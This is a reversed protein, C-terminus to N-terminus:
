DDTCTSGMLESLRVPALPDTEPGSSETAGSPWNQGYWPGIRGGFPKAFGRATLQLRPGFPFFIQRPATKAQVGFYVMYWPNKEVGLSMKLDSNEVPAFQAFQKLLNLEEQLQGNGGLFNFASPGREPLGTASSGTILPSKPYANCGDGSEVDSYLLTPDIRIPVLWEKADNLGTVEKSMSNIFDWQVQESSGGAPDDGSGRNQFTLNKFLTKKVGLSVPSGSLEVFDKQMLNNGLAWIIKKRNAQDYRFSTLARMAFMWNRGGHDSCAANYAAILARNASAIAGINIAGPFVVNVRPLPPITNFTKKCLNQNDPGEVWFPRSTICIAPVDSWPAETMDGSRLPSRSGADDVGTTGLVRSRFTLLKFGQRIQYNSHAIANLVEAQKQAGYYAALDVSNQLNIKDHIVLSVNIVMAFFMFLVQFILIMFIAMQGQSNWLIRLFNRKIKKAM